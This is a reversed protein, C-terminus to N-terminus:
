SIQAIIRHAIRDVEKEVDKQSQNGNIVDDWYSGPKLSKLQKYGNYIKLHKDFSMKDFHNTERNNDQIRKLAVEPPTDVFINVAPISVMDKNVQEFRDLLIGQYVLTSATFRDAIVVYGKELAPLIIKEINDQRQANMIHMSTAASLDDHNFFVDRIDEAFPTGGPERLLTVKINLYELQKALYKVITSKGSGDGGEIVLFLGTKPTKIEM